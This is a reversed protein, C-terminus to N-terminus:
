DIIFSAPAMGTDLDAPLATSYHGYKKKRTKKNAIYLYKTLLHAIVQVLKAWAQKM